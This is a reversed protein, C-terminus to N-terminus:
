WWKAGGFMWLVKAIGVLVRGCLKGCAIGHGEQGNPCEDEGFSVFSSAGEESPM